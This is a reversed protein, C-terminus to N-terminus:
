LSCYSIRLGNLSISLEDRESERIMNIIHNITPIGLIVPVQSGIETPDPIVVAVQDENYGRM